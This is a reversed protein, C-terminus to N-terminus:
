LSAEKKLNLYEEFLCISELNGAAFLAEHEFDNKPLKSWKNIILADKNQYKEYIYKFNVLVSDFIKEVVKEDLYKYGDLLGQFLYVKFWPSDDFYYHNSGDEHKITLLQNAAEISKLADEKYSKVKTLNYLLSGASIMTGVNYTWKTKEIVLTESINDFYLHTLPDKLTNKTWEYIKKSWDLYYSEKTLQYVRASAYASPGNICTNRVWKDRPLDDPFERWLLGGGLHTQWSDYIFRLLEKAKNLFEVNGDIEYLELFGIALWVNDDYFVPKETGEESAYVLYNDNRDKSLYWELNKLTIKLDNLYTKSNTKYAKIVATFYASYDWLSAINKDLKHM